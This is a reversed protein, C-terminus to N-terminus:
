APPLSRALHEWIQQRSAADLPGKRRLLKDAGRPGVIPVGRVRLSEMLPFDAGLFCLMATVQVTRGELADSVALFQKDISDLLKTRDRGSVLLQEKGPSFLGGTRRVRVRADAYKKADIVFVGSPAVAIHDIDGSRASTGRCRNHLFLVEGVCLKELRAAIAREGEAGTKFAKTSAPDGSLALLAGGVRPFKSYVRGERAQKRRKYERDLSAGPMSEVVMTKAPDLCGLCIVAKNTRHWAASEGAAVERQCVACSGAYKLRMRRVRNSKAAESM